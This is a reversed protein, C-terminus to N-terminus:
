RTQVEHSTFNHGGPESSGTPSQVPSAGTYSSLGVASVSRGIGASISDVLKVPQAAAREFVSKRRKMAAQSGRRRESDKVFTTRYFRAVDTGSKAKMRDRISMWFPQIGIM